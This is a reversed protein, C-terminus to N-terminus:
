RHFYLASRDPGRFKAPDAPYQSSRIIANWDSTRAPASDGSVCTASGARTVIRGEAALEEYATMVTNRSVGLAASLERTSPLAAGCPLGGSDMSTRLASALQRHLPERSFRDLSLHPLLARRKM